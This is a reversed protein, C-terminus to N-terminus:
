LNEKMSKLREMVPNIGRGFYDYLQCYEQYLNQYLLTNTPNPTFIEEPLKAMTKAAEFISDYGGNEKGAAVAGFIAAGLASAQVTQSVKIERNLVDAYIQMLLKNKHPLGGSAIIEKVEIGKKEFAEIIKRTGFATSELLARYIEQPKTSLTYGVIMGSLNGNVLVSRNGNWWDLALLGNAGPTYQLAEKELWQHITLGENKAEAEVKSSVGNKIYWAFIDGVAAQGAEYAFLQPIIGDEVVGSIGEVMEEKDSLFLHCTSTGMVMLMSGPETMGVAPVSAHADIIGVAVATGPLLGIKKAMEDTLSGARQGIAIVDGRLKSQSIGKLKPHLVELFSDDPYGSHKDWLAKYGTMCTSRQITGTLKYTVWDCAEIFLDTTEYVEPAKHLIELIKPFMWESSIKGGYRSIFSQDLEKATENILDAEEQAAHHKWLKPWSHPNDKWVEQLCLPEGLEDLPMMTCATFDVGIGIVERAEIGATKMVQPISQYLVELYDKPDQLATDHELLAKQNPLQESIVHNSYETVHTAVEKGTAVNVVLVRGSETGYDIGIAYKSDM